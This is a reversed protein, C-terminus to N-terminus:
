DKYVDVNGRKEELYKYCARMIEVIEDELIPYAVGKETFSTFESELTEEKDIVLWLSGKDDKHIYAKM